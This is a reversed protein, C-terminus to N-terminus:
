INVMSTITKKFKEQAISTPADSIAQNLVGLVKDEIAHVHKQPEPMNSRIEDAINAVAQEFATQNDTLALLADDSVVEVTVPITNEGSYPKSKRDFSIRLGQM